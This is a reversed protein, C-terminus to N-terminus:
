VKASNFSDIVSLVDNETLNFWEGIVHKDEFKSHLYHEMQYGGTIFYKLLAQPHLKRLEKIRLHPTKSYGIKWLLTEPNFVFYVFYVKCSHGNWDCEEAKYGLSLDYNTKPIDFKNEDILRIGDELIGIIERLQGKTLYYKGYSIVGHQGEYLNLPLKLERIAM